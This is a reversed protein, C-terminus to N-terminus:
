AATPLRDRSILPLSATARGAVKPAAARIEPTVGAASTANSLCTFRRGIM